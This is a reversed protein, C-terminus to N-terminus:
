PYLMRQEENARNSKKLREVEAQAETIIRIACDVASESQSPEGEVKAMIFNALKEIEMKCAETNM